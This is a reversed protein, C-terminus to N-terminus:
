ESKLVKFSGDPFILTVETNELASVFAEAEEESMNFIATSLADAVGSHSTQVSVSLYRNEPRLSTPDIIHHYRIGDVTHYREYVGSTVLAGDLLTVTRTYPKEDGEFYLPNRIGSKWGEGSPKRGIACLNGGMDLVLGSYGQRKLEAKILEATYGKAIAGVDLMLEPDTIEVTLNEEDIIVSDISTHKARKSLEEATPVGEKGGSVRFDHWLSLVSGMAVNVKGGTLVYMDRCFSLLEIIEASAKVKGTGALRNLTALNTLGEYEHYIDFLRHYHAIAAEVSKALASFEESEMGSYDYLVSVTDFYDYFVRNNVESATEEECSVLSFSLSFVFLLILLAAFIRKGFNVAKM